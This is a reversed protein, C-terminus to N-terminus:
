IGNLHDFVVRVGILILITGGLIDARRGLLGELKTGFLVGCLSFIVSVIGIILAPILPFLDLVAFSIGVAMADISTAVALVTVAALTMTVPAEEGDEGIGEWIMKVGIAALLFFAVWHDYASILTAFGIGLGWGVLTMASQFFGFFAALLLANHYRSSPRSGGVALSVVFCDMALGIGILIFTILDEM